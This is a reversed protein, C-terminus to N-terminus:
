FPSLDHVAVHMDPVVPSKSFYGVLISRPEERGARRPGTAAHSTMSPMGVEMSLSICCYRLRLRALALRLSLCAAREPGPRLPRDNSQAMSRFSCPSACHHTPLYPTSIADEGWGRGLRIARSWIVRM